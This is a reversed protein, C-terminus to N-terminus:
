AHGSPYDLIFHACPIIGQPIKMKQEKPVNTDLHMGMRIKKWSLHRIFCSLHVPNKANRICQKALLFYVSPWSVVYVVPVFSSCFLKPFFVFIRWREKWWRRWWWRFVDNNYWEKREKTIKYVIFFTISIIPHPYHPYPSVFSFYLYTFCTNISFIFITSLYVRWYPFATSFPTYVTSLSYLERGKRICLRICPTEVAQEM